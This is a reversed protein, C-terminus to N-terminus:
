TNKREPEGAKEKQLNALQKARSLQKEAAAKLNRLAVIQEDLNDHLWSLINGEAPLLDPTVRKRGGNWVALAIELQSHVLADLAYLLAKTAHRNNEHCYDKVAKVNIYKM